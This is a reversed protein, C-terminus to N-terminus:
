TREHTGMREKGVSEAWPPVPLGLLKRVALRVVTNWQLGHEAMLRRVGSEEAANFYSSRIVAGALVM